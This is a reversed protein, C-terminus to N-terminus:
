VKRKFMKEIEDKELKVMTPRGHPCNYPNNCKMLSHVLNKMEEYSLKDGAMIAGRCAMLSAIRYKEEDTIDKQNLERIRMIGENLVGRIDSDGFIDPIKRVVAITEYIDMEFGIDEFVKGYEKLIQIDSPDMEIDLPNLLVQKKDNKMSYLIREARIREHAAHQDVILIGDGVDCIIYTNLVQGIVNIGKLGPINDEIAKQMTRKEVPLTKQTEIRMNKIEFNRVDPSLSPIMNENQFIKEIASSIGQFVEYENVFRVKTKSPNVNVDVLSPEIRIDVITVPYQGHFIHSGYGYLISPIFPSASVPRSNVYVFIKGPRREFYTKTTLIRIKMNGNEFQGEKLDRAINNGFLYSIREIRNKTGPLEYILKSNNDISFKIENYYVAYQLFVDMIDKLELSQSRLTKKRAPLNGFINWVKILTGKRPSSKEVDMIEGFKIKIRTSPTEYTEGTEIISESVSTISHLAEGRFGFTRISRLDDKSYIKSTAHRKISLLADEDSMGTGNDEVSISDKGGSTLQVKISSSAADISNELLEKVINAPKEVVEGAAILSVTEQDLLRIKGM